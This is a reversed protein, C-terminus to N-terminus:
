IGKGENGQYRLSYKAKSVHLIKLHEDWPLSGLVMWCENIATMKASNDANVDLWKGSQRWIEQEECIEHMRAWFSITWLPLRGGKYQPDEISMAGDLMAQGSVEKANNVFNKSPLNRSVLCQIDETPSQKSFWTKASYTLIASTKKPLELQIFDVVTM